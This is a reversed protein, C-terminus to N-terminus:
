DDKEIYVTEKEFKEHSKVVFQKLSKLLPNYFFFAYWVFPLSLMAPHHIFATWMFNMRHWNSKYLMLFILFVSPFLEALSHTM